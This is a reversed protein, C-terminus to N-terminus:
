SALCVRIIRYRSTMLQIDRNPVRPQGNKPLDIVIGLQRCVHYGIFTQNEPLVYVGSNHM